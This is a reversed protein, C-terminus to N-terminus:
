GVLFIGQVVRGRETLGTVLSRGPQRKSGVRFLIVVGSGHQAVDSTRRTLCCAIGAGFPHGKKM